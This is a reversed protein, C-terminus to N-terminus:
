GRTAGCVPGLRGRPARGGLVCFRRPPRLPWRQCLIASDEIQGTWSVGRAEQSHSATVGRYLHIPGPPCNEEGIDGVDRFMRVVDQRYRWLNGDCMFWSEALLAKRETKPVMPWIEVLKPLRTFSSEYLLVQQWDGQALAAEKSTEFAEIVKDMEEDTPEAM